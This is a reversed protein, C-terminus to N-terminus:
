VAKKYAATCLQAEANYKAILDDYCVIVQEHTKYKYKTSDDQAALKEVEEDRFSELQAAFTQWHEAAATLDGAAKAKAVNNKVDGLSVCKQQLAAMNASPDEPIWGYSLMLRALSQNPLLELGQDVRIIDAGVHYTASPDAGFRLLVAACGIARSGLASKLVPMGTDGRYNPSSLGKELRFALEDANHERILTFPSGFFSLGRLWWSFNFATSQKDNPPVPHRWLAISKKDDRPM